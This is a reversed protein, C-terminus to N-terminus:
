YGWSELLRLNLKKKTSALCQMFPKDIYGSFTLNDKLQWFNIFIRNKENQDDNQQNNLKYGLISNFVKPSYLLNYKLSSDPQKVM